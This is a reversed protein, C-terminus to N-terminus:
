RALATAPSVSWAAVGARRLHGRSLIDRGLQDVGFIHRSEVAGVPERVADLANRTRCTRAAPDGFLDVILPAAIAVIMLVRHVPPRRWRCGTPASGAGSCAGPSRASIEGSVLEVADLTAEGEFLLESSGVSM